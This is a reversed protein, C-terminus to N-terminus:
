SAAVERFFASTEDDAPYFAEVRLEDTTIDQPTGFTSMVTFLSLKLGDIDLRLPMVPLLPEVSPSREPLDGARRILAEVRAIVATDGLALAESRLRQVFLPLAEEWNSIYRRIGDPDLTAAALNFGETTDSSGALALLSQSARNGMVLNWHRDVVLAPFPEHHALVKGLADRVPAMHADQLSSERYLPAFGAANLLTNRERLPVELADALRLVMDRSPRSRGTEIWSLHRQSIAASEALQLQSVHRLRRWHRCLNPFAQEASTM